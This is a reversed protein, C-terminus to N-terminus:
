KAAAAAEQQQKKKKKKPRYKGYTGRWIKGRRTRRDGKGM